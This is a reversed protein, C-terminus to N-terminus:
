SALGLGKTIEATTMALLLPHRGVRSSSILLSAFLAIGVVIGKVKPFILVFAESFLFTQLITPLGMEAM